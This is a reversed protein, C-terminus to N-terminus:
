PDKESLVLGYKHMLNFRLEEDAVRRITKLAENYEQKNISHTM